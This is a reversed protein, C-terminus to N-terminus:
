NKRTVSAKNEEENWSIKRPKGELYENILDQVLKYRAILDNCMGAYDQFPHDLLKSSVIEIFEKYLNDLFKDAQKLSEYIIHLVDRQDETLTMSVESIYTDYIYTAHHGSTGPLLKKNNLSKIIQQLIDIKQPILGLNTRLEHEIAKRKQRLSLNEKIIEWVVSLFFGIVVGGITAIVIWFENRELISM